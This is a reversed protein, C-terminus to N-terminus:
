RPRRPVAVLAVPLEITEVRKVKQRRRQERLPLFPSSASRSAAFAAATIEWTSLM